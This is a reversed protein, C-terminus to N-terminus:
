VEYKCSIHLESPHQYFFIKFFITKSNSFQPTEKGHFKIRWQKEGLKEIPTAIENIKSIGFILCWFKSNEWKKCNIKALGSFQIQLQFHEYVTCITVRKVNILTDNEIQCM